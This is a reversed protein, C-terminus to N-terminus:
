LIYLDKPFKTLVDARGNSNIVVTDEIRMGYENKMYIGPEVTFVHNYLISETSLPSIVPKEHVELGVGHGVAHSFQALGESTVQARCISDIDKFTHAEIGISGITKEQVLKLSDYVKKIENSPNGVFFMRSIDSVYDDYNIGFDILMVSGKKLIGKGQKSDYHPLAGNADIAVMAPFAVEYGHERIWRELAYSIEKETMGIRVQKIVEKLCQDTLECANRIATVEIEHKVERVHSVINETPRLEIKSLKHHLTNFEHVTMDTGEFGLRQINETYIIESVQDLFRYQASILRFNINTQSANIQEQLAIEYRGDSFLYVENKTILVYAEREHPSLTKCGTLYLINYFNSILIADLHHVNLLKKIKEIRTTYM